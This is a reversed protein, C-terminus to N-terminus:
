HAEVVEKMLSARQAALGSAIGEDLIQVIMHTYEGVRKDRPILFIFLFKASVGPRNKRKYIM